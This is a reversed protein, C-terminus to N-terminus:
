AKVFVANHSEDIIKQVARDIDDIGDKNWNNKLRLLYEINGEPGKIPSYSLDIIGFGNEKSFNIIDKVVDAHVKPDRVVGNKGVRDRGAEFQPKILCIIDAGDKVLQKVVPLVLKLSIFSVDITCIDCLFGIDEPKVYRINTREMLKVRPDNRLEWAFQGYGVDISVVERAGSKLLCDTFGGTSAGVDIATKDAVDILFEKLAKELKLGGRSVFPISKGKIQIESDIDVMDGAKDVRRNDAFVIGSMINRKAKERTPFFGKKVLLLDIREKM